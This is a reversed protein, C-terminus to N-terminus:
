GCHIHAFMSLNVTKKKKHRKTTTITTMQTDRGRGGERGITQKNTESQRKMGITVIRSEMGCLFLFYFNVKERGPNLQLNSCNCESQQSCVFPSHKCTIPCLILFCVFIFLIPCSSSSSLLCLLFNISIFLLKQSLGWFFSSDVIRVAKMKQYFFLSFYSIFTQYKKITSYWLQITTGLSPKDQKKSTTKIQKQKLLCFM